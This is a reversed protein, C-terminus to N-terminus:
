KQPAAEGGPKDSINVIRVGNSHDPSAPIASTVLRDADMKFNSVLYKKITEARREALDLSKPDDIADAYVAIMFTASKLQANSLAKGLHILESISKPTVDTTDAEFRIEITIYPRNVELGVQQREEASLGGVFANTMPALASLVLALVVILLRHSMMVGM